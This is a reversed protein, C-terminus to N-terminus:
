NVLVEEGKVLFSYYERMRPYSTLLKNATVSTEDTDIFGDHYALSMCFLLQEIEDSSLDIKM